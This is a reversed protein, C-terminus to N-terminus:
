KGFLQSLWSMKRYTYSPKGHGDVCLVLEYKNGNRDKIHRPMYRIDIYDVNNGRSRSVITPM